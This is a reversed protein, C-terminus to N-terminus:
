LFIIYEAFAVIAFCLGGSAGYSPSILFLNHGFLRWM